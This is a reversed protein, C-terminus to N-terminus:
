WNSPGRWATVAIQLLKEQAAASFKDLVASVTELPNVRRAILHAEVEAFAELVSMSKSLVYEQGGITVRRDRPALRYLGDM